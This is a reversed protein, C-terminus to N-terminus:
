DKRRGKLACALSQPDLFKIESGAAIGRGLITVCLDPRAKALEEVLFGATADGEATPNTALIVEMVEDSKTRELLSAIFLDEPGSGALPSLTGGLVHYLGRYSGSAEITDLDQPEEVVMIVSRDREPDNCIECPSQTSPYGCVPCEKVKERVELIARALDESFGQPARWLFYALRAGSKEGLGPLRSLLRKLTELESRM